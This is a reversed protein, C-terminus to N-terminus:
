LCDAGVFALILQLDIVDVSGDATIDYDPDWAADGLQSGYADSSSFLMLDNVALVKSKDIDWQCLLDLFTLAAPTPSATPTETPDIEETGDVTPTATQEPTPTDTVITPTITSPSGTLTPTPSVTETSATSEPELETPTSTPEIDSTNTPM